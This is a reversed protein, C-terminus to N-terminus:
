GAGNPAAIEPRPRWRTSNPAAIEPQPRWRTSDPAGRSGFYGCHGTHGAQKNRTTITLVTHRHRGGDAAGDVGLIGPETLALRPGNGTPAGGPSFPAAPRM